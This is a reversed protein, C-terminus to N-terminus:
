LALLRQANEGLVLAKDAESIALERITAVGGPLDGIQHPYDSGMLVKDAGAFEIAFEIAKHSYPFTDMYMQRLALSPPEAIKQRCEPYVEFGRDMREALFPLTGGMHALVLTLQPFEQLVGGYLLRSVAISTEFLFGEVAVLRYDRMAGIHEPVIPHVFLPVNLEVAKAYLPWFDAHDLQKGNIHTFLTGGRLNGQTVARDLETVAAKPDQLPLAALATFREPYQDMVEAFGDNVIQALKIGIAPQESHVGPVTMTLCQMDVGAAVMAAVRAAPNHHEEVIINYDGDTIMITRGQDDQQVSADAEGKALEQLYNAPFFHNHFDLIMTPEKSKATGIFQIGLPRGKLRRPLLM